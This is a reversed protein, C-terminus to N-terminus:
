AETSHFKILGEMPDQIINGVTIGQSKAAELLTAKELLAISGVFNCPLEKYNDYNEVNRVFFDIFSHLVIRHISPEEINHELFPAFQALFRNAAPKRYVADIIKNRDLNYEKLFKECLHEPLQKKLVDGVLLKGLVAGSGEDGLIYGLPSVNDVVKEGDYYCSNSGTGLICAIGPKHGCLARAAALLDSDVEIKTASPINAKLANIVHSKIEDSIIGAGYYYIETVEYNAINPMLEDAIRQTMEEQTMLLANMGTTFIQAVKEKGNLLCWDIKTSGCDAILIM